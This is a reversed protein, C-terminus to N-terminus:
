SSCFEDISQLTEVPHSLFPVHAAGRIITTQIGPNIEKSDCGVEVPVLQDRDGLIQLVPCVLEKLDDRLDVLKLVNLGSVLGEESPLSDDVIVEKILRNLGIQNEVGQTQLLLFRKLTIRPNELIKEAFINLVATPQANLWDRSRVFKASSALLILKSVRDPHRSALRLAVMGGLSWGLVTSQLPMRDALADVFEDISWGGQHISQGHGPLDVTSVQYKKQVDSLLMSWISSSMGWGHLLLLRPGVGTTKISVDM